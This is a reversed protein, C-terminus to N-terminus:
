NNTITRKDYERMRRIADSRKTTLAVGEWENYGKDTEFGWMGNPDCMLNALEGCKLLYCAERNEYTVLHKM